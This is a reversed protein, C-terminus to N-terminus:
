KTEYKMNIDEFTGKNFIRKIQWVMRERSGRDLARQGSLMSSFIVETNKLEPIHEIKYTGFEDNFTFHLDMWVGQEKGSEDFFRNKGMLERSLTNCVVIVRPSIHILRQKAIELQEMIFERGLSEKFLGRIFNQKTHRFALLDIHSWNKYNNGALLKLDDHIIKFPKFYSNTAERDFIYNRNEDSSVFSPNIGIFLLDINREDEDYHFAFGRELIEFAAFQNNKYRDFIEQYANSLTDKM